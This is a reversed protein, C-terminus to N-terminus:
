GECFLLLAAKVRLLAPATLLDFLVGTGSLFDVRSAYGHCLGDASIRHEMRACANLDTSTPPVTFQSQGKEDIWPADGPRCGRRWGLLYQAVLCDADFGETLGLVLARTLPPLTPTTMPEIDLLTAILSDVDDSTATQNADRIKELAAKFDALRV